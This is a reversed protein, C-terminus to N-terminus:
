LNRIHNLYEKHKIKESQHIININKVTNEAMQKIDENYSEYEKKINELNFLNLGHLIYIYNVESFLCYNSKEMDERIPLRFWWKHLKEMLSDTPLLNNQLDIWFKSNNKRVMYHLIIFDKINSMIENVNKNYDKIDFDNYNTLYNFLLFIQNITTGIATGELPEVFNASLGVAVCNKIWTEDLCGPDFKIHKGIEIKKNLLKEVEEKAQDANIYDSDYIYGNGQRGYTPIQFMWGCNMAKSLTYTNYNETDQTPFAIVEKMKLNNKYSIWKAGLKSILVKKFGSSDIYFDSEYFKDKSYINKIHGYAPCITVGVITDTIIEIGREKCKKQLFINLKNTNFHFQYSPSIKNDLFYKFITNEKHSPDTFEIQDFNKSIYYGYILPYQNVTVENFLSSIQHYYKKPTWNEFMTGLKITADCEKILDVYSIDCYKIFDSWHESAGEGVGITEIIDSKILSIKFNSFRKKLLLASVLGATGGGVIVITKIEKKM